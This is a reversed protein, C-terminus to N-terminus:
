KLLPITLRKKEAFGAAPSSTRKWRSLTLVSQAGPLLPAATKSSRPLTMPWTARIEEM